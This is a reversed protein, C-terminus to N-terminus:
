RAEKTLKVAFQIAWSDSRLWAGIEGDILYEVGRVVCHDTARIDPRSTLGRVYVTGGTIVANRGVEVPEAPNNPGFQGALELHDAWVDPIPDGYEDKAQTARRIIFTERIM